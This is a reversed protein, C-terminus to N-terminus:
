CWESIKKDEKRTIELDSVRIKKFTLDEKKLLIKANPTISPAVLIGRADNM